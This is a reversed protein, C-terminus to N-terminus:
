FALRRLSTYGMWLNNLMYLTEGPFRSDENRAVELHQYPADFSGFLLDNMSAAMFVPLPEDQSRPPWLERLIAGGLAKVASWPDGGLDYGAETLALKANPLAEILTHGLKQHIEHRREFSILNLLNAIDEASATVRLDFVIEGLAVTSLQDCPAQREIM